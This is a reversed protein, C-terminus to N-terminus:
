LVDGTPSMSDMGRDNERKRTDAMGCTWLWTEFFSAVPVTCMVYWDGDTQTMAYVIDCGCMVDDINRTTAHVDEAVDCM